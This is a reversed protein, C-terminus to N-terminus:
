KAPFAEVVIVRERFPMLGREPFEIVLAMATHSETPIEKAFKPFDRPERYTFTLGDALLRFRVGCDRKDSAIEVDGDAVKVVRGHLLLSTAFLEASCLVPTREDRLKAFLLLADNVDM